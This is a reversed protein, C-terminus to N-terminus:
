QLARKSKRRSLATSPTLESSATMEAEIVEVYQEVKEYVGPFHKEPVLSATDQMTAAVLKAADPQTRAMVQLLSVVAIELAILQAGLPIPKPERM